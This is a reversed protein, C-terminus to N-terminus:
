GDELLGAETQDGFPAPHEVGNLDLGTGSLGVALSDLPLGGLVDIPKIYLAIAGIKRQHQNRSIFDPAGM